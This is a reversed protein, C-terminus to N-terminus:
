QFLEVLQSLFDWAERIVDRGVYISSIAIVSSLFYFLKMSGTRRANVVEFLDRRINKAEIRPGELIMLSVIAGVVVLALSIEPFHLSVALAFKKLQPATGDEISPQVMMVIIAVFIGYFGLFLGIRAANRGFRGDKDSELLGVERARSEISQKLADNNYEPAGTWGRRESIKKFSECYGLIGLSRVLSPGDGFRKSSIINYHLSYIVNRRWGSLDGLTRQQLVLITDSHADHHQHKHCIDRLFFYSQNPIWYSSDHGDKNAYAVTNTELEKNKFVPRSFFVEGTRFLKFYICVDASKRIISRADKWYKYTLDENSEGSFLRRDNM